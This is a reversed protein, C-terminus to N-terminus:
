DQKLLAEFEEVPVPKGFLYGQCLPCGHQELFARQEETEVGEAIVAMELTNAMAIITQAIVADAPRVGLNRVFSQAIKLQRFPLQTLYALSSYGTGFDDMSFHIGFANLENMIRITDDADKLVVSETLELKLKNPDIAANRVAALVQEVFDPQHFRRASVNIALELHRTAESDEWKKIQACATELVWQGIPLILGTEEALPIFANPPVLTSGPRLWRILAEAGVIRGDHTAQLQYHLIFQNRSLAHRLDAEMATRENIIAQMQPDFFRLTNRGSKKAQYMAIDAQKLLDDKSKNHNNFLSAGISPTNHYEHTGLQYPQNLAALIKEGVSEVQTACVIIDDSLEELMVVFEDGGIRAVTDEERVCSVLRQAVQLLLLDGIDHGFSDNLDKFNDLDVFLLAGRQHKRSSSAFAQNLRDLLLRRNPLHTLFDYFALRKIEDEAARKFTIDDISVVFNTAIGNRNTVASVTLHEPFDEGNKRTSWIEGSWFGTANASKWMAACTEAQRCESRLLCFDRGIVEEAGYGTISSFAQNVKLIMGQADTIMMGERSEFAIAAIRLEAEAQKLRSIDVLAIRLTWSEDVGTKRLCDLRADFTSGDNRVMVLDAEHAHDGPSERMTQFLRYWRDKDEDAIFRAFRRQKLNKREVGLMTSAKLNSEAIFGHDTLTLYGNPAFEYLDVFRDRSIELAEQTQRLQEHQM